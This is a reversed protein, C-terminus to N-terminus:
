YRHIPPEWRPWARSASSNLRKALAEQSLSQAMRRNRLDGSENPLLCILQRWEMAHILKSLAM